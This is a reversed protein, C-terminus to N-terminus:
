HFISLARVADIHMLRTQLQNIQEQIKYLDQQIDKRKTKATLLKYFMSYIEFAFEKDWLDVTSHQLGAAVQELLHLAWDSKQQSDALKAMMLLKNYYAKGTQLQPQGDLWLMAAELGTEVAIKAAEEEYSIAEPMDKFINESPRMGVLNSNFDLEPTLVHKQLWENVNDSVFPSGDEFSLNILGECRGLFNKLEYLASDIQTAYMGGLAKQGQWAYYQLDLWYHNAGELFAIEVRELLDLWQKELVLRKLSSQLDSRPPKLRTKSDNAPPISNLGGWRVARIMKYAAWYGNDQQRLYAAMVRTQDLLAKVSGIATVQIDSQAAAKVAIPQETVESTTITDKQQGYASDALTQEFKQLLPLLNPRFAEEWEMLLNQLLILASLAHEIEQQNNLETNSLIDLVKESGLWDLASRKQVPKRPWVEQGFVKLLSCILELGGSFGKLGNERLNAYAYYAAVRLDKASNKLLREACTIILANDIGSLKALESKITEFDDDYTIDNGAPNNTDIPQTWEQWNDIRSEAIDTVNNGFLRELWKQLMM